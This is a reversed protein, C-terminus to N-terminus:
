KFIGLQVNDEEINSLVRSQSKLRQQFLKQLRIM